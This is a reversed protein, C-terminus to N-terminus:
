YPTDWCDSCVGGVLYFKGCGRCQPQIYIAERKHYYHPIASVENCKDCVGVLTGLGNDLTIITAQQLSECNDCIVRLTDGEKWIKM